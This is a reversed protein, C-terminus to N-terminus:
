QKMPIKFTLISGQGPHSIVEMQGNLLEIRGKMNKMGARRKDDTNSIQFGGGDDSISIDLTNEDYHLILSVLCANAHKIINNFAEQITRFILLEKKSDLYVPNGKVEFDIKFRDAQRIRVLEEDIAHLLGHQLIIDANLSRSIDGLDTISKSVLNVSSDIKEVVTQLSKADLTQLQLKALTLSLTINDHIEKSIHQFTQEQIELKTNLLSQEHIIELEKLKHLYALQKKRHLYIIFFIFVAMLLLLFLAIVLLGTISNVSSQM